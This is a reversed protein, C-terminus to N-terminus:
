MKWPNYNFLSYSYSYSLCCTATTSPIDWRWQLVLPSKTIEGLEIFIWSFESFTTADDRESPLLLLHPLHKSDCKFQLRIWISFGSRSLEDWDHKDRWSKCLLCQQLVQFDCSLFWSDFILKVIQLYNDYCSVKLPM